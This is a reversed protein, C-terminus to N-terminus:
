GDQNEQVGPIGTGTAAPPTRAQLLNTASYTGRGQQEVVRSAISLKDSVYM